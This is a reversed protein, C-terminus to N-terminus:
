RLLRELLIAEFDRRSDFVATVFVTRQDIRYIVRWPKAVLERYIYIGVDQLEPIWRGRAPLNELQQVKTRIKNATKRASPLSDNAIYEVIDILDKRATETWVVRYKNLEKM